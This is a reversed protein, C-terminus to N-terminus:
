GKNSRLALAYVRDPVVRRSLLCHLGAHYVGDSIKLFGILFKIKM